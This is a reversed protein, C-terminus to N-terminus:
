KKQKAKPKKSLDTEFFKKLFLADSAKAEDDIELLNISEEKKNGIGKYKVNYKQWFQFSKIPRNNADVIKGKSYIFLMDMKTSTDYLKCKSLHMCLKPVFASFWKNVMFFYAEKEKTTITSYDNPNDLLIGIIQSINKM